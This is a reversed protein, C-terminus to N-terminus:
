YSNPMLSYSNQFMFFAQKSVIIHSVMRLRNLASCKDLVDEM